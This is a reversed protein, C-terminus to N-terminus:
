RNLSHNKAYEVLNKINSKLFITSGHIVGAFDDIEVNEGYKTLVTENKNEVDVLLEDKVTKGFLSLIFKKVKIDKSDFLITIM